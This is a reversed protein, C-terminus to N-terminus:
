VLYAQLGAAQVKEPAVTNLHSVFTVAQGRLQAGLNDEDGALVHAFLQLITDIHQSAVPNNAQVLTMLCLLVPSWEAFDKQLPLCSFLTPLAQDLPLAEPKKIIMRSLCGCANDRATLVEDSEQEGKQFFPQIANLLAPFHQTLDSQSNEILVGAAFAANSRVSAEEDSLARSLLALIEQTFPTIADKMGTIIEGLSGVATSRDSQSRGPSYYKMLQPMFKSLPDSFDAGLVNAMAGVLDSAASILVSDYESGEEPEGEVAESDVQAPSQQELIMLTYECTQNLYDTPLFVILRLM